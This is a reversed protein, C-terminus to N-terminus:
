SLRVSQVGGGMGVYLTFRRCQFSVLEASSVDLMQAPMQLGLSPVDWEAVLAQARSVVFRAPYEVPLALIREEKDAFLAAEQAQYNKKEGAVELCYELGWLPAVEILGSGDSRRGDADLQVLHHVLPM